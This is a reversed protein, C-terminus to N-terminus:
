LQGILRICIEMHEFGLNKKKLFSWSIVPWIQLKVPAPFVAIPCPTTTSSSYSNLDVRNRPQSAVFPLRQHGLSKCKLNIVEIHQVFVGSLVDSISFTVGTSFPIM